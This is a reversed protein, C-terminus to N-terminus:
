AADALRAHEAQALVFSAASPLTSFEGGTRGRALAAAVATRLTAPTAAVEALGFRRFAANHLRVHGRGWGYSIAPCGRMLAELVTLGGTSHVLADAAALWESMQDTFGEVRVRPDDAFRRSLQERLRENRGCLCVVQGVGEVTLVESAAGELAGVGWGGGSVLVIKAEPDLGLARRADLRPRPSLFVAKTFGHVCHVEADPGAIAHVEDISEPHTVLHLDAGPTAWYRLGAVDTIVACVPVAIRGAARLRGLVETANPYVSVIIDPDRAAILELLGRSGLRTLALQILERTPAFRACLWFAVDWAWLFRYFVVRAAGQSIASVAPGMVPLCDETVVEVDPRESRLQEALARAPADHGEGVSATVILIRIPVGPFALRM